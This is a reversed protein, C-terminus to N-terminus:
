LNPGGNVQMKYKYTLETSTLRGSQLSFAAGGSDKAPDKALPSLWNVVSDLFPVQRLAGAEALRRQQERRLASEAEAIRRRVLADLRRACLRADAAAAGAELVRRVLSPLDADEPVLGCRLCGSEPCWAFGADMSRVAAALDRNVADEEEASIVDPTSDAAVFPKEEGVDEVTPGGTATEAEKQQKEEEDEDGFDEPRLRYRLGGLGPWDPMDVYMLRGESAEALKIFESRARRTSDLLRLSSSLAEALGDVHDPLWDACSEIPCFRICYRSANSESDGNRLRIKIVSLSQLHPLASRLSDVLWRNEGLLRRQALQQQLREEQADESDDHAPKSSNEAAEAAEEDTKDKAQEHHADGSNRRDSGIRAYPARAQNTSKAASIAKNAVKDENAGSDIALECRQEPPCYRFLLVTPAFEFDILFSLMQGLLNSNAKIDARDNDSLSQPEILEIDPATKLATLTAKVTQEVNRVRAQINDYGIAQLVFWLPLLSMPQYSLCRIDAPATLPQQKRQQGFQQETQEEEEEEEGKPKDNNSPTAAETTRKDSHKNAKTASAEDEDTTKHLLSGDRAIRLVTASVLGPYGLWQDFEMLCSSVASSGGLLPRLSTPVSNLALQSLKSGQVHLWVRHQRCIAAVRGLRDYSGTLRTGCMAQVFLPTRGEGSDSEVLRQLESHDICDPNHSSGPLIRFCTKPLCLQCSLYNMLNTSTTPHLYIVPPKSFLCEFGTELLNPFRSLLARRCALVLSDRKDMHFALEGGGLRWVKPIWESLDAQLRKAFGSGFGGSSLWAALSQCCLVANARQDLYRLKPRRGSDGNLDFLMSCLDEMLSDMSRGASKLPLPVHKTDRVREQDKREQEMRQNMEDIGKTSEMITRELDQFMKDMAPNPYAQGLAQPDADLFSLPHGRQKKDEGKEGTQCAVSSRNPMLAAPIRAKNLPSEPLAEAAEVASSSNNDSLDSQPEDLHANSTPTQD